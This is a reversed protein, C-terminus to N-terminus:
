APNVPDSTATQPRRLSPAESSLSFALQGILSDPVKTDIGYARPLEKRPLYLTGRFCGQVRVAGPVCHMDVLAKMDVGRVLGNLSQALRSM